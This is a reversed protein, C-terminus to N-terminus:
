GLSRQRFPRRFDSRCRSRSARPDQNAANGRLHKKGSHRGNEHSYILEIDDNRSNDTVSHRQLDIGTPDAGRVLDDNRNAVTRAHNALQALSPMIEGRHIAAYNLTTKRNGVNVEGVLM